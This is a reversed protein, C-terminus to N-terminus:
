GTRLEPHKLLCFSKTLPVTLTTGLSGGGGRLVILVNDNFAKDRPDLIFKIDM